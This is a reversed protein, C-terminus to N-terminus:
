KLYYLITGLKTVHQFYRTGDSNTVLFVIERKTSSLYVSSVDTLLITAYRFKVRGLDITQKKYNLVILGEQQHISKALIEPYTSSRAKIEFSHYTLTDIQGNVLISM